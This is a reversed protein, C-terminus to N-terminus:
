ARKRALGALVEVVCRAALAAGHHQHDYPPGLENFDFGCIGEGYDLVQELSRLIERAGFGGPEPYKQAPLAAPDFADVDLTVYLAEAGDWARELAQRNVEELGLRDVERMSFFRVGLEQAAHQWFISNRAGRVGVPVLNRPDLVGLEMARAWQSGAWYRPEWSLDLHADYAIVGIRQGTARHIGAVVFLAILHDGGIAIPVAGARVIQEVAAAAKELAQEPALERLSLDGADGIRIYEGLVLGHEPLWGNSHDLSFFLSARRIARPADYSGERAYLDTGPPPATGQPYFTRPDKVIVSEFPLGLVIADYGSLDEGLDVRPCELFTPTERALLAEIRREVRAPSRRAAEGARGFAAELDSSM